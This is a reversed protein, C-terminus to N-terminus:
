SIEKTAGSIINKCLGCFLLNKRCKTHFCLIAPLVGRYKKPFTKEATSPDVDVLWFLNKNEEDLSNLERVKKQSHAV